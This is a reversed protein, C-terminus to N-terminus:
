AGEWVTPYLWLRERMAGELCVLFDAVVKNARHPELLGKLDLLQQVVLFSGLSSTADLVDEALACAEDAKGQAVLVTVLMLQGFARSRTRVGPRLAIIREAQRQLESLDGLQRMCRAAESALSGEDFNSIWQSPEEADTGGLAREAQILLRTCEGPEELAAYGRAALALLRAQLEPCGPGGHLVERGRRVLQIAKEPQDLHNALHSMSGLIHAGLQTDGGIKVLDLARGFHQRATADRGADHAMWGAMETLAAAATFLAQGDNGHDRGFLRPAIQTHLYNVVTAYLHGGGVQKDAARFAQMASADARHDSDPRRESKPYFPERGNMPREDEGQADGSGAGPAQGGGLLLEFRSQQPPTARELATDLVEQMTPVPVIKSGQAEWKSVTRVAVGLYEAFREITMRLGIRLARAEHGTWVAIVVM